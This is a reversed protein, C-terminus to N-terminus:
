CQRMEARAAIFINFCANAPTSFPRFAPVFGISTIPSMIPLGSPSEMMTMSQQGSGTSPDSVRTTASSACTLRVVCREVSAAGRWKSQWLEVTSDSDM